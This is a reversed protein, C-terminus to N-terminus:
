VWGHAGRLERQGGLHTPPQDVQAEAALHVLDLSSLVAAVTAVEGPRQAAVATVM